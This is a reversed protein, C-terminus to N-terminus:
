LAGTKEQLERFAVRAFREGARPPLPAVTEALATRVSTWQKRAEILRCVFRLLMLAAARQHSDGFARM